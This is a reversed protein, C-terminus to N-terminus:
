PNIQHRPYHGPKIKDNYFTGKSGSDVFKVFFEFSMNFYPYETVVGKYCLSIVCTHTYMDYGIARVFSSACEFVVKGNNRAALDIIESARDYEQTEPRIM